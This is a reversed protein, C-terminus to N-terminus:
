PQGFLELAVTLTIPGARDVGAPAMSASMIRTYHPGTEVRRLWGMLTRYDGRVAVAFGVGNPKANPRAPSTATTQRLELLEVKSETELRYFYQLNNALQSAQIARDQIAKNAATLAEYQETLQAAAKVNAALRNGEAVKQSLTTTAEEIRDTILYLGVGSLVAVTGAIVRLPNRKVLDVFEANTM